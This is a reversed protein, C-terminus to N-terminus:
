VPGWDTAREPLVVYGAVLSWDTTLKVAVSRWCAVAVCVTLAFLIVSIIIDTVPLIISIVIDIVTIHEPVVGHGTVAQDSVPILKYLKVAAPRLSFGSPCM